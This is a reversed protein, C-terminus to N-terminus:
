LRQAGNKPVPNIEEFESCGQFFPLGESNTNYYESKLSQRRIIEAIEKLKVIEWDNRKM